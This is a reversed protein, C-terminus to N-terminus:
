SSSLCLKRSVRSSCGPMRIVNVFGMRALLPTLASKPFYLKGRDLHALSKHLIPKVLRAGFIPIFKNQLDGLCIKNFFANNFCQSFKNVPCFLLILWLIHRVAYRSRLTKRLFCLRCRTYSLFDHRAHSELFGQCFDNM